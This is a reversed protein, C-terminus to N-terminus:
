DRENHHGVGYFTTKREIGAAAAIIKREPFATDVINKVTFCIKKLILCTGPM